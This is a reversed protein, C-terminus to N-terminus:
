GSDKQMATIPLQNLMISAQIDVEERSTYVAAVKVNDDLGTSIDNSGHM